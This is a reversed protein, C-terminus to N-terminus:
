TKFRTDPIVIKAFNILISFKKIENERKKPNKKKKSLKLM